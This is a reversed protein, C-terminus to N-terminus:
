AHHLIDAGSLNINSGTLHIEMDVHNPTGTTNVYVITQNHASDAFWSISNAGVTNLALAQQVSTAGALATLDLHDTGPTFDTITDFHGTGPQSDTIAKFVFTDSGGGGTMLDAGAGGNLTDNGTGGILVDNGGNANITNNAGNRGLFIEGFDTGTLTTADQSRDVTVIGTDSASPSSTSGTYTFSGGNLSGANDTFTVTTIPNGNAPSVGGSSAGNTATVAIPNGDVDTDNYLLASSPIVIAAGSGLINTIVHDDRVIPAHDAVGAQTFTLINSATDGDNDVLTYGVSTGTFGSTPQFTFAGTTMVIALEGGVHSTDTDITLTHTTGNYTFSPTGSGSPTVTNATPNFAYTEGDVTISQIHGGDAGFGGETAGNLGAVFAGSIPPVSFVLTDTLQSLDTVVIPTDALQTGPAPDFAVPNLASTSVGSGVGIGFSIM